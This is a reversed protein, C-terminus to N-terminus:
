ETVYKRQDMLEDRQEKASQVKQEISQIADGRGDLQKRLKEVEPELLAIENELEQVEESTQMRVAKVTTLSTYTERIERQLWKDREAKNKFRSIRGQKAYLRQRNTEAEDLKAKVAEEQEKLENFRPTLKSLEGEREGIAKRVENLDAERRAKSQQAAAQGDTLSKAQLEAQALNRSADRRDDEM